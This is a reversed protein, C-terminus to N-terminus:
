IKTRLPGPSENVVLVPVDGQASFAHPSVRRGISAAVVILDARLSGAAKKIAEEINGGHSIRASASSGFEGVIALAHDVIRQVGSHRENSICLLTLEADQENSLIAATMLTTKPMLQSTLAVLVHKFM